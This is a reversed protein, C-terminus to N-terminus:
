SASTDALVNKVSSSIVQWLNERDRKDLDTFKIGIDVAPNEKGSAGKIWAIKGSLSFPVGHGPLLFETTIISGVAPIIYINDTEICAGVMSLNVLWGSQLKGDFRLRVPVSLAFQLRYNGRAGAMMEKLIEIFQDTSKRGPDSPDVGVSMLSKEEVIDALLKKYRFIRKLLEDRSITMGRASILVNRVPVDKNCHSCYMEDIEALLSSFILEHCNPCLMKLLVFGGSM